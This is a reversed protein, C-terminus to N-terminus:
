GATKFVFLGAAPVYSPDCVSRSGLTGPEVVTAERQWSRGADASLYSEIGRGCVYLRVRGDALATLEPVGGYTLTDYSEFRLGDSSRTMVTQQGRSIAMLWSGDPLRALSPDTLTDADPIALARATFTFRLGDSSDALCMARPRSSGPPGMGSLYALRVRGDPLLTADPDVLGAPRSVGDVSVPGVPIAADGELRAMWVGGDAGNVYYIALTGDALRVGDPVSAHELVQRPDQLRVGDATRAVVVQHFFPGNPDNVPGAPGGPEVECGARASASPSPPASAVPSAPPAAGGSGGGCALALVCLVAGLGAVRVVLARSV